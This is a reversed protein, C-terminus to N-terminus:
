PQELPPLADGDADHTIQSDATPAACPGIDEDTPPLMQLSYDAVVQRMAREILDVLARVSPELAGESPVSAPAHVFASLGQAARQRLDDQTRALWTLAREYTPEAVLSLRLLRAAGALDGLEYLAIGLNYYTVYNAGVLAHSHAYYELAPQYYGLGFCLRGMEFPVDCALNMRYWNRWCKAVLGRIDHLVMDQSQEVQDHLCFANMEHTDHHSMSM